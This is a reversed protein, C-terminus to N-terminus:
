AGKKALGMRLAGCVSCKYRGRLSSHSSGGVVVNMLWKHETVEQCTSCVLKTM